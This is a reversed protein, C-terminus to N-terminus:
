IFLDLLQLSLETISQKWIQLPHMQPKRSNMTMFRRWLKNWQANKPRRWTNQSKNSVWKLEYLEELQGKREQTLSVQVVGTFIFIFM